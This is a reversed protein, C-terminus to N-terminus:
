LPSRTREVWEVNQRSVVLINIGGGCTAKDGSVKQDIAIGRSIVGRIHDVYRSTDFLAFSDSSSLRSLSFLTTTPNRKIYQMFTDPAGLNDGSHLVDFRTEEARLRVDVIVPSSEEFGCIQFSMHQPIGLKLYRARFHDLITKGVKSPRENRKLTTKIQTSIHQLIGMNEWLPDVGEHAVVCNQEHLILHKNHYGKAIAPSGLTFLTDTGLLM